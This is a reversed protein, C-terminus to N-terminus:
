GGNLIRLYHNRDCQIMIDYALFPINIKAVHWKYYVYNPYFSIIFDNQFVQFYTTAIRLKGLLWYIPM